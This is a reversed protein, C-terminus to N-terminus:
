KYFEAVKLIDRVMDEYDYKSKLRKKIVSLSDVINTLIIEKKQLLNAICFKEYSSNLSVIAMKHPLSIKTHGLWLGNNTLERPAIIPVIGITELSSTYNQIDIAGSIGSCMQYIEDIVGHNQTYYAPSNIFFNQAM